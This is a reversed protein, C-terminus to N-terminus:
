RQLFMALFNWALWALGILILVAPAGLGRARARMYREFKEPDAAREIRAAGYSKSVLVGTRRANLWAGGQRVVMILGALIAGVGAVFWM